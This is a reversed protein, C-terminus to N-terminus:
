YCSVKTRCVSWASYGQSQYIRWAWQINTIPNKLEECSPRGALTRVQFLGCSPAHLGRIPYNDGVAQPNCGSEASMVRVMVSANWAYKTVEAVYHECGKPWSEPQVEAKPEAEPALNNLQAPSEQSEVATVQVPNAQTHKPPNDQAVFSTLSLIALWVFM